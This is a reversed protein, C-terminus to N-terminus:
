KAAPPFVTGAYRVKSDGQALDLLLRGDEQSAGSGLLTVGAQTVEVNSLKWRPNTGYPQLQFAATLTRFDAEPAFAVARGKATGEAHATELLQV